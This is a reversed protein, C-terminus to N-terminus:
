QIIVKYVQSQDNTMIRIHYVGKAFTSADFDKLMTSKVKFDEDYLMKGDSSLIQMRVDGEIGDISVTFKGDTPNPYVNIDGSANLEDIGTCPDVKIMLNDDAVCGDPSTVTVSVTHFGLGASDADFTYIQTTLGNNWLYDYGPGADIDYIWNICLNTDSGLDVEAAPFFIVEVSDNMVCAKGSVTVNVTFYSTGAIATDISIQATTDGTSWLYNYNGAVAQLNIIQDRGCIDVTDVTLQDPMAEIELDLDDSISCANTGTISYTVNTTGIGLKNYDVTITPTVDGTSWQYTYAPDSQPDLIITDTECIVADNVPTYSPLPLVETYVTDSNTCSNADTYTYTIEVLGINATTPNFYSGSIGDGSFTGGFPLGFLNNGMDNACYTSDLNAIGMVPLPNVVILASDVSYCTNADTFSYKIYHSGVGATAPDFNGSADVGNGFYTGGLPSAGSLAFSSANVCVEGFSPVNIVPLANVNISTTDSMYCGNGDTYSYTLIHNGAGAISPNFVGNIIGNGSYVGGTPSAFNLNINAADICVDTLPTITLVPLPNVTISVSDINTCSNADSYEYKIYHTGVGASAPNFYGFADVGNGSYTGGAPSANSLAFSAADECVDALATLSITPLDNVITTETISNSCGNADTFSYTINHNGLGATAPTFDNGSIGAGTFTGGIVLDVIEIKYDEVEGYSISECSTPAGNWKLSVRMKTEGLVATSPVTINQSFTYNSSSSSSSVITYEESATFSGDRNWDIFVVLYDNNDTNLVGSLTFTHGTGLQTFVSATNDEYGNGTSLQTAGNLSVEKIFEYNSNSASSACTSPMNCSTTCQIATYQNGMLTSSAGDICYDSALGTFSLVPLANVTISTTDVTSCSNNDTSSYIIDHTGAGAVAPNFVGSSVGLGSYTGGSPTANNLTVSAADICVDSLPSFTIDPEANVTIMTSDINYCGNSNTVEYVIYHDGAGALAPDFVGSGVATGSYTGNPPTAFNLSMPNANECIDSSNTFYIDPLPYVGVQVSDKTTNYGDDITVIFWTLQNVQAKPMANTSTFGAPNSTWSYTYTGSGGSAQPNLSVSDGICVNSYDPIPNVSIPGGVVNIAINDTNYCLTNQDTVKINFTATANMLTTTPSKIVSDSASQLLSSPTWLYSYSGAGVNVDLTTNTGYNVTTSAATASITPIEIVNVMVSDYNTCTNADTYSYSLYYSGYGGSSPDFTSASVGPGYFSGGTPTASLSVAADNECLDSVSSMDVVPLSMVNVTVSDNATIPINLVDWYELVKFTTTDTPSVKFTFTSTASTMTDVGNGDTGIFTIPASGDFEISLTISDGYCISTDNSIVLPSPVFADVVVSDVLIGCNPHNYTAIYKYSGSSTYPGVTIDVDNSVLTSNLSWSFGSVSPTSPVTVGTNVVNPDQVEPSGDTKVWNTNDDTDAGTLRIGWSSSGDTGAGTWESTVGSAAPISSSTGYLVVDVINGSPDKIINVSSTSSAYGSSVDSTQHYDALSTSGGGDTSLLYTGNPSMTTGVPFTHTVNPSSGTSTWKEIMFGSIDSNPVGTIEIYDNGLYAPAGGVPQGISTSSYHCIETFFVDGAPFYKSTVKLDVTETTNDIATYKPSAFYPSGISLSHHNILTDNDQSENVANAQIYASLVYTGTDSLDPGNVGFIVNTASNLSGTNITFSGNSNIPGTVSWAITLPDTSFDIQPGFSNYIEIFVSDAVGLCEGNQLYVDNIAIDGNVGVFEIAGADPTTNSRAAGYIDTIIGLPAGIDDIGGSIPTLNNSSIDTFVPDAEVSNADMSNATQLDSLSTKYGSWYALTSGSTFYVNYDMESINSISNTYFAYGGGNNAFINNKLKIGGGYYAYIARGTSTSGANLNVTNHYIEVDNAYYPYIGYWTSTSTGNLNIINNNVQIPNASSGDGRFYIGYYSTSTGNIIVTNNTIATSDSYYDHIGHVSYGSNNDTEIYNNNILMDENYYTYIGYYYHNEIINNEITNNLKRSTTGSGRWCIGYYGNKIHNNSIVNNNDISGYSYIPTFFSSTSVETEIINNLLKNNDAGNTFQVVRGYSSGSQVKITMNSFTVYDAGDFLLVAEATSTLSEQLIVDTSDGTNSTFTITNTASAGTIEGIILKENYTATAVNFTVPGSVGGIGLYNIAATFSPYDYNQGGATDGITYTGSLPPANTVFSGPGAWDSSDGPACIDRVYFDYATGLSLGSLSHPLSSVSVTTGNGRTFGSPGYELLWASAGGTTWNLDTSTNQINTAILNTSPYCTINLVSINDVSADYYYSYVDSGVIFRFRLQVAPKSNYASLNILASNWNQGQNSTMLWVTDWTTGADDTAEVILSGDIANNFYMHYDFTMAPGVLSSFDFIPSEAIYENGASSGSTECYIYYTGDSAATPGTNSSSTGFSNLSWDKDDYTVQSWLGLNNSEFSESYPFSNVKTAFTLPGTWSSVETTSCSDQVYVDYATASSLSSITYSNTVNAVYTGSGQTFGAPGYELNWNSAGGTTWAIDASNASINSAALGSPAFCSPCAAVIATTISTEAGSGVVTGSADLIEYSTEAGWTGGANWLTTINDGTSVSFTMNGTSGTSLTVDDLVVVGNVIVDITNGSWGDGYSDDMKLTYSCQANAIGFLM